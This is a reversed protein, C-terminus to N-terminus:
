GPPQDARRRESYFSGWAMVGAAVWFVPMLGTAAGLAGVLLPLTAQSASVASSRMGVAEGTRGPPSTRHVLSMGLPQGCGLVMGLVFALPLLSALSSLFPFVLYCAAAAGMAVALVRWEDFSRTLRSVAMRVAFSGAAFAGVVMGIATASLGSRVGHLPLLFNFLDWGMSMLTGSILAARLPAHRLMAAVGGRSDHSNRSAPPAVIRQPGRRLLALAVLAFVVMAAFSMRHSGHDIILGALLPAVLGSISFAVAMAGFAQARNDDTTNHGIANNVGVHVITFGSGMMV